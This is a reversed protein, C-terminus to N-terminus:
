PTPRMVFQEDAQFRRADYGDIVDPQNYFEIAPAIEALSLLLYMMTLAEPHEDLTSLAFGNLWDVIDNVQPLIADRFALIQPMGATHRQISRATETALAWMPVFPALAAFPPPIPRSDTVSVEGDPAKAMFTIPRPEIANM